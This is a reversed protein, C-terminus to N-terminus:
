RRARQLAEMDILALRFQHQEARSQGPRSYRYYGLLGDGRILGCLYGTRYDSSDVPGAPFGGVGIIKDNTTLHARDRGSTNVVHKWGRRTLFRHDGSAVLETGDALLVRYALRSSPWHALVRTPVNRLY